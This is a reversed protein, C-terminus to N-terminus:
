GVGPSDSPLSIRFTAGRGVESIVEIKGRHLEVIGLSLALGLGSGKGVEKTSFFPEFLRKRNEESIGPGNDQVEVHFREGERSARLVIRKEGIPEGELAHISNTVLNRLVQFFQDADLAVRVREPDTEGEIALLIGKTEAESKLLELTRELLPRLSQVKLEPAKQRAFMLLDNIIKSARKTDEMIFDVYQTEKETLPAPLKRRILQTYGLISALPNKVEHAIGAGFRGLVALRESRVLEENARRIEKERAELDVVMKGFARVLRTMEYSGRSLAPVKWEGRSINMSTETLEEIPRAVKRAFLVSLLVSFFFIVVLFHLNSRFVPRILDWAQAMPARVLIFANAVGLVRSVVFLRRGGSPVEGEQAITSGPGLQGVLHRIRAPDRESDADPFFPVGDVDVILPHLAPASDYSSQFFASQIRYVYFVSGPTGVPSPVLFAISGHDPNRFFMPTRISEPDPVLIEGATRASDDLKIEHLLKRGRYIRIESIGVIGEFLRSLFAARSSPGGMAAEFLATKAVVDQLRKSIGDAINPAAASGLEMVYNKKDAIYSRTMTFATGFIGVIAVVLTLLTLQTRIKRM